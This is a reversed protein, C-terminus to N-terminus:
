KKSKRKKYIQKRKIRLKLGEGLQSSVFKDFAIWEEPPCEKETSEYQTSAESKMEHGQASGSKHTTEDNATKIVNIQNDDSKLDDSQRIQNTQQFQNRFLEM